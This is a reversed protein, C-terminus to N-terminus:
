PHCPATYSLPRTRPGPRNSWESSLHPHLNMLGRGRAGRSFGSLGRLRPDQNRTGEERGHGLRGRSVSLSSLTAKIHPSACFLFSLLIISPKSCSRSKCILPLILVLPSPCLVCPCHQECNLLQYCQYGMLMIESVLSVLFLV